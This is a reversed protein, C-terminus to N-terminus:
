PWCNVNDTASILASPPPQSALAGPGSVAGFILDHNAPHVVLPRYGNFNLSPMFDTLPTWDSPNVNKWIGGNDAGLYIVKPNTPDAVVAEIRGSIPGMGGATDIPAPGIATWFTSSPKVYSM